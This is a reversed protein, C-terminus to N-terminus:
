FFTKDWDDALLAQVTEEFGNAVKQLGADGGFLIEGNEALLVREETMFVMGVPLLPRGLRKSYIRINRIPAELADEVTTTLENDDGGYTAPWSVTIEGYRNVFELLWPTVAYGAAEYKRCASESDVHGFHIRAPPRVIRKM